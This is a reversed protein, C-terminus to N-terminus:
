RAVVGRLDKLLWLSTCIFLRAVNLATRTSVVGAGAVGLREVLGLVGLGDLGQLVLALDCQRM